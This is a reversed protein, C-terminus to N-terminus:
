GASRPRAFRGRGRLRTMEAQAAALRERFRRQEAEQARASLGQRRIWEREAATLPTPVDPPRQATHSM